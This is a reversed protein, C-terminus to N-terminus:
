SVKVNTQEGTKLLHQAVEKTWQGALPNIAVERLYEKWSLESAKRWRAYNEIVNEYAKMHFRCFDGRLTERDCLSCKM